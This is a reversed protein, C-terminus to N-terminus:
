AENEPVLWLDGDQYLMYVKGKFTVKATNQVEHWVDWYDDNDPNLLIHWQDSTVGSVFERNVSEAFHQPIYIGRASDAFLIANKLDIEDEM